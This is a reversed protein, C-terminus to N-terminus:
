YFYRFSEVNYRVCFSNNLMGELSVSEASPYAFTNQPIPHLHEEESSTLSKRKLDKSVLSPAFDFVNKSKQRHPREPLYAALHPPLEKRGTQLPPSTDSPPPSPRMYIPIGHEIKLDGARELLNMFEAVSSPIPTMPPPASSPISIPPMYPKNVKLRKRPANSSSPLAEEHGPYEKSPAPKRTRGSFSSREIVAPPSRTPLVPLSPRHKSM